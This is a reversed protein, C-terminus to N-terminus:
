FKEIPLFNLTQKSLELKKSVGCSSPTECSSIKEVVRGLSLIFLTISAKGHYINIIQSNVALEAIHYYDFSAQLTADIVQASSVPYENGGM